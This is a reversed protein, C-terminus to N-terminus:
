KGFYGEEKRAADIDKETEPAFSGGKTGFGKVLVVISGIGSVGLIATLILELVNNNINQLLVGCVSSLVLLLLAYVLKTNRKNKRMKKMQKDSLYYSDFKKM